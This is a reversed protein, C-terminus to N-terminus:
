GPLAPGVPPIPAGLPPLSPDSPPFISPLPATAAPAPAPMRWVLAAAAPVPMYSPSLRRELSEPAYRPNRFRRM